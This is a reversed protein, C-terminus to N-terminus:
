EKDKKELDIIQKLHDIVNSIKLSICLAGMLIAIAIAEM